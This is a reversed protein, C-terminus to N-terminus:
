VGEHHAAPADGAHDGPEQDAIVLAARAGIAGAQAIMLIAFAPIATKLWYVLPLGSTETSGEQVRWAIDVFSRSADLIIWCTPLLLLYGGLLNIWARGKPTFRSYFVDVRVHGDAKLAAAAVGLFLIAHIYIQSEQLKAFAIGFAYRQVVVAATVIVLAVSLWKLGDGVAKVLADVVGAIARTPAALPAAAGAFGAAGLGAIVLPLALLPTAAWGLWGMLGAFMRADEYATAGPAIVRFVAAPANLIALLLTRVPPFLVGALVVATIAAAIWFGRAGVATEGSAEVGPPAGSAQDGSTM